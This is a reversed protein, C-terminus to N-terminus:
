WNVKTKLTLNIIQDNLKALSFAIVHVDANKDQVRMSNHGGDIFAFRTHMKTFKKSQQFISLSGKLKNYNQDETIL